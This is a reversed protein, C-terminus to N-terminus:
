RQPKGIEKDKGSAKHTLPHRSLNHNLVILLENVQCALQCLLPLHYWEVGFADLQALDRSM